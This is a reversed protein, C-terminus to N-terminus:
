RRLTRVNNNAPLAVWCGRRKGEQRLRLAVMAGDIEIDVVEAPPRDMGLDVLTGTKVQFAKM